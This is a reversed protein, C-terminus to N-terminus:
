LVLYKFDTQTKVKGLRVTSKTTKYFATSSNRILWTKVRYFIYCAASSFSSLLWLASNWKFEHLHPPKESLRKLLILCMKFIFCLIVGQLLFRYHFGYYSFSYLLNQLSLKGNETGKWIRISFEILLRYLIILCSGQQYLVIVLRNSQMFKWWIITQPRRM